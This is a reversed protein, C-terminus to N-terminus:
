ISFSLQSQYDLILRLGLYLPLSSALYSSLFTSELALKGTDERVESNWFEMKATNSILNIKEHM